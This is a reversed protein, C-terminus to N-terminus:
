VEALAMVQPLTSGSPGYIGVDVEASVDTESLNFEVVKASPSFDRAISVLGAAPYVVASTGVVFFLDCAEAAKQAKRWVDAPLMEGFWVIDPRIVKGCECRPMSDLTELGRDRIDGCGTCRTRRLSGHLELVNISGAARHLGDVNQTALTFREGLKAEMQALALHGPNPSVAKAAARRAHYFNWVVQPNRRWGGPSAVDEISHGEWLGDSARFTPIGSEASVGAGTLVCLRRCSTLLSAAEEIPSM